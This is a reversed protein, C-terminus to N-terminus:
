KRNKTDISFSLFYSCNLCELYTLLPNYLSGGTYIKVQGAQELKSLKYSNTLGTARPLSSHSGGYQVKGIGLVKFVDLSTYCPSRM